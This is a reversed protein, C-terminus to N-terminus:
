RLKGAKRKYLHPFRRLFEPFIFPKPSVTSRFKTPLKLTLLLNSKLYWTYSAYPLHTEAQFFVFKLKDSIPNVTM